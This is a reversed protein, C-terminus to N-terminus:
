PAEQQMRQCEQRHGGKSWHVRQCSESCYRVQPFFSPHPAPALGRDAALQLSSAAGAHRQHWTPRQELNWFM